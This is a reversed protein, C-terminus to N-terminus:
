FIQIVRCYPCPPRFQLPIWSSPTYSKSFVYQDIWKRAEAVYLDHNPEDTFWSFLAGFEIRQETAPLNASNPSTVM